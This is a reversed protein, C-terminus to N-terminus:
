YGIDGAADDTCQLEVWGCDDNYFAEASERRNQNKTAAYLAINVSYIKILFQVEIRDDAM